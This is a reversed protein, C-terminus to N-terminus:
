ETELEEDRIFLQLLDIHSRHPAVHTPFFFHM